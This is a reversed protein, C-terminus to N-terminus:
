FKTMILTKTTKLPFSSSFCQLDPTKMFRTILIRFRVNQMIKCQCQLKSKKLIQDYYVNKRNTSSSQQFCQLIATKM